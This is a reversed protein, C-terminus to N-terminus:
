GKSSPLLYVEFESLDVPAADLLKRIAAEAAQREKFVGVKNFNLFVHIADDQIQYGRHESGVRCADWM